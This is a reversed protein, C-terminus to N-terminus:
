DTTPRLRGTRCSPFWRGITWGMAWIRLIFSGASASNVPWASCPMLNMHTPHPTRTLCDAVWVDTGEYLAAMDATLESFDTAYVISAGDEDFRLGLSTPGGHPQDVCRITAAGVTMEDAIERGEVVPRYFDSQEFAYAFRLRLEDLVDARAYM